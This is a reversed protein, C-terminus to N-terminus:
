QGDEEGVLLRCRDGDVGYLPFLLFLEDRWIKRTKFNLLNKSLFGEDEAKTSYEVEERLINSFISKLLGKQKSFSRKIILFPLSTQLNVFSPPRYSPLM